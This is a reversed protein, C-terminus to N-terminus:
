RFRKLCKNQLESLQGELKACKVGTPALNGQGSPCGGAAKPVRHAVQVGRSIGKFDRYAKANRGWSAEIRDKENKTTAYYKNCGAAKKGAAPLLHKCQSNARVRAIFAANAPKSKVDYFEDETMYKGDAQAQTHADNGCCECKHKGAVGKEVLPKYGPAQMVGMMTASNAPNGAPGCNNLMPDGLLQVNKGEIRVNFSGPGIFKTPGEANNSVIGGGTAKSAIDGSSGFSAGKIAVPQGDFKVTTSYGQPQKSSQGINPLPTPAFPPPPPPMKCVNPLTASAIGNSGKTVPTKPFNITITSM